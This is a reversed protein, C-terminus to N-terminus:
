QVIAQISDTYSNKDHILQMPKFRGLIWWNLIPNSKKRNILPHAVVRM